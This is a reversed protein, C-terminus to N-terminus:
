GEMVLLLDGEEVEDDKEVLIEVIRGSAPSTIAVEMKMAEAIVLEDNESVADGVSVPVDWILGTVTATVEIRAMHFERRTNM